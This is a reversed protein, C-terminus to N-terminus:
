DRHGTTLTWDWDAVRRGSRRRRAINAADAACLVRAAIMVLGFPALHFWRVAIWALTMLLVGKAWQGALLQGAGPFFFSLLAGSSPETTLGDGRRARRVSSSRAEVARPAGLSPAVIVRRPAAAPPQQPVTDAEANEAPSLAAGCNRCARRRELAEDHVRGCAPCLSEGAVTAPPPAFYLSNM